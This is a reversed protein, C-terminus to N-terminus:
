NSTVTLHIFFYDNAAFLKCKNFLFFIRNQDFRMLLVTEKLDKTENEIYNALGLKVM